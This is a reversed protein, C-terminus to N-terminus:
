DMLVVKKSCISCSGKIIKPTTLISRDDIIQSQTDTLIEITYQQFKEKSLAYMSGRAGYFMCNLGALAQGFKVAQKIIIENADSIKQIKEKRLIHIIGASCWDGAGATDVVNSIPVARM